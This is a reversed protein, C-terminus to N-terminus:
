RDTDGMVADLSGVIAVLDAIMADHMCTSTAELAVFSPARFHVRWPKPGGDSVLYCGSEGRPSEVAVYVEGEPVRFGETVIKFHHILSEMSTHLEERPPLVVKRDDSIWPRGRLRELRRLCQDVIRTSEAMEDMRVRYRDYVDGAAYVPVRFDVQGYALYPQDRRLDWDVGSARLNPGSQGLAIADEGSLQGVGRTRELWIANRDLLALYDDLAHPMWEVYKRCEAYFGEPIDEALGGVQFYRTHMRAGTVMEYLDLIMERERFCYWFMSIAGLELASTGLFVLHSHIRNLECLLTRMWTAKEPIELSLLKEVALVFVLEANQYGVYDIREPYTVCKWWTKQEMTKEFGTHLYGIVANLGVVQEGDLDVILRLVGHTSPHNPGFNIRLIDDSGVLEAPVDLITPVRKPIRSGEYPPPFVVPWDHVSRATREPAISM